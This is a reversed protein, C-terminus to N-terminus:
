RTDNRGVVNMVHIGTIVVARTRWGGAGAGRGCRGRSHRGCVDIVVQAIQGWRMCMLINQPCDAHPLQRLRRGVHLVAVVVVVLELIVNLLPERMLIVVALLRHLRVLAGRFMLFIMVILLRRRWSRGDVVCALHVTM